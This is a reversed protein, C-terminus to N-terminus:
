CIAAAYIERVFYVTHLEIKKKKKQIFNQSPKSKEDDFNSVIMKTSNTIRLLVDSDTKRRYFFHMFRM